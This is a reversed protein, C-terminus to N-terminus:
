RGSIVTRGSEPADYETTTLTCARKYRTIYQWFNRRFLVLQKSGAELIGSVVLGHILGTNVRSQLDTVAAKYSLMTANMTTLTRTGANKLTPLAYVPCDPAEVFPPDSAGFESTELSSSAVSSFLHRNPTVAACDGGSQLEDCVREDDEFVPHVREEIKPSRIPSDPSEAFLLDSAGHHSRELYSSDMHSVPSSLDAAPAVAARGGGDQLRANDFHPTTKDGGWADM